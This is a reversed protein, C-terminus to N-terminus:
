ILYCSLIFTLFLCAQASCLLQGAPRERGIKEALKTALWKNHATFYMLALFFM